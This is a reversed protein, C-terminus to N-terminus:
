IATAIKIDRLIMHARDLYKQEIKLNDRGLYPNYDDDFDGEYTTNGDIYSDAAEGFKETFDSLIALSIAVLEVREFNSADFDKSKLVSKLLTSLNAEQEKVINLEIM